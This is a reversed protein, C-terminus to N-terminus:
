EFLDSGKEGLVNALTQSAQMCAKAKAPDPQYYGGSLCLMEYSKLVRCKSLRICSGPVAHRTKGIDQPSGQCDILEALITAENSALDDALDKFSNDHEAMLAAWYKAIHFNTSRNDAENVQRV